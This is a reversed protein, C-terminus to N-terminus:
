CPLILQVTTEQHPRSEIKLKGCHLESLRKAIILGLGSGQQEYIKREFQRYAGIKAIQEASMGRGHDIFSLIFNNHMCTNMVKIVTGARSFKFANDILEEVIKLLYKEPIKLTAEQLELQLDAERNAQIATQKILYLISETPFLTEPYLLTKTPQSDSAMVELEAYLLFKQMLKFLREGSNNISQAMERIEAPKIIESARILLQSFGLISNMPTRMEHPLSMTINNRLEELQQQYHQNLTDQKEIRTAIADLLEARTFPKSLYDDAGLAMGQRFDNKECKATLFIFPIMATLPNQRLDGLVGYGDLEPMMVDCIILDPLESHALQVGIQGNAAGIAQFEEASLLELINERVTEEDEIVLIKKM